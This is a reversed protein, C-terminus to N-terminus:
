GTRKQLKLKKIFNKIEEYRKGMNEVLNKLMNIITRRLGESIIEVNSDNLLDKIPRNETSM